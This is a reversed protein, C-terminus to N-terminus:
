VLTGFSRSVKSERGGDTPADRREKEPNKGTENAVMVLAGEMGLVRDNRLSPM